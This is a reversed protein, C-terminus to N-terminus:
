IYRHCNYNRIIAILLLGGGGIVLLKKKMFMKYQVQCNLDKGTHEKQWTRRM